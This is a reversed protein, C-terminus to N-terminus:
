RVEDGKTILKAISNYLNTNLTKDVKVSNVVTRIENGDISLVVNMNIPGTPAASAAAVPQPATTRAATANTLNTGAIVTDDKNLQIAGEPRLLVSGDPKAVFDNGQITNYSRMAEASGSAMSLASALSPGFIANMIGASFGSSMLGSLSFGSGGAGATTGSPSFYSILNKMWNPLQISSVASKFSNVLNAAAAATQGSAQFALAIQKLIPVAFTEIGSLALEMAPLLTYELGTAFQEILSGSGTLDENFPKFVAAIMRGIVNGVKRLVRFLPSFNSVLGFFASKLSNAAKTFEQMQTKMEIISQADMEPPTLSELNGSMLLALDNVDELGAADAIAKREFYSMTDFNKGADDLAGALQEIREAPNTATIMDVTSLFPGGLIANLRGVQQAASDFTDFKLAVGVLKGMSLNTADAQAALQGFQKALEDAGQASAGLVKKAENFGTVIDQIPMDLSRSLSMLKTNFYASEEATAGMSKQLFVMNKAQDKVTFGMEGLLSTVAMIEKQQFKTLDTFSRVEEFLAEFALLAKTANVGVYRLDDAGDSMVDYFKGLVGTKRQFQVILDDITQGFVVMQYTAAALAAIVLALGGTLIGAFATVAAGVKAARGGMATLTSGVTALGKAIEKIRDGMTFVASLASGLPGMNKFLNRIAKNLDGTAGTLGAVGDPGSAAKAAQQINNLHKSMGESTKGISNELQGITANLDATTEAIDALADNRSVFRGLMENASAIAAAMSEALSANKELADNLKELDEPNFDAM